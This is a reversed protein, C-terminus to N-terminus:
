QLFFSCQKWSLQCRIKSTKKIVNKVKTHWKINSGYGFGTGTGSLLFTATGATGNGCCHKQADQKNNRNINSQLYPSPVVSASRQGSSPTPWASGPPGPPPLCIMCCWFPPCFVIYFSCLNQMKVWVPHVPVKSTLLHEVSIEFFCLTLWKLAFFKYLFWFENKFAKSGLVELFGLTSQRFLSSRFKEHTVWKLIKIVKFLAKM